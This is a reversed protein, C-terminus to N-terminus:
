PNHASAPVLRIMVSSGSCVRQSSVGDSREEGQCIARKGRRSLKKQENFRAINVRPLHM